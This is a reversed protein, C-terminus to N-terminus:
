YDLQPLRDIAEELVAIVNEVRASKIQHWSHLAMRMLSIVEYVSARIRLREGDELQGAAAGVYTQLFREGLQEGLRSPAASAL